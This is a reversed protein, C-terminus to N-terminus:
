DEKLKSSIEQKSINEEDIVNEGPMNNAENDFENFKQLLQKDMEEKNELLQQLDQASIDKNFLSNLERQVNENKSSLTLELEYIGKKAKM